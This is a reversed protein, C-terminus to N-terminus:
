KALRISVNESKYIIKRTATETAAAIMVAAIMSFVWSLRWVSTIDTVFLDSVAALEDSVCIHVSSLRWM